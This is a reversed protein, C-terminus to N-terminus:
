SQPVDGSRFIVCAFHLAIYPIFVAALVQMAKQVMPSPLLSAFLCVLMIIIYALLVIRYVKIVKVLRCIIPTQTDRTIWHYICPLPCIAFAGSMIKGQISSYDFHGDLLLPLFCLLSVFCLVAQFIRNGINSRLIM